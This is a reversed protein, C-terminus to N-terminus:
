IMVNDVIQKQIREKDTTDTDTAEMGMGMDELDEMAELDEMGMTAELDEMDMAELGVMGMAELGAELDEMGMVMIIDM